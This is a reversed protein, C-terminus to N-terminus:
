TVPTSNKVVIKTSQINGDLQAMTAM